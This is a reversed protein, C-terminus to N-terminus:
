APTHSRELDVLSRPAALAREAQVQKISQTVVTVAIIVSTGSVLLGAAPVGSAVLAPVAAVLALFAGGPLSLRSTLRALYVVTEPGPRVGPIFAGDRRLGEAQEVPDLVVSAYAFTVAIILLGELLAYGISGQRLLGDALDLGLLGGLTAPTSVLAGAFIAPVMGAINLPVPMFARPAPTLANLQPRPYHLPLRRRCEGVYVVGAVSATLLAAALLRADLATEWYEPLRAAMSALIGAMLVVSLGRGIGRESIQEGIWMVLVGGLTLAVIGVVLALPGQGELLGRQRFVLMIGTAQAASIVVTVQRALAHLRESGGPEQRIAALAPVLRGGLQEGLSAVIAPSAGLLFLPLMGAGGGGLFTLARLLSLDSEAAAVRFAEQDVGPIPWGAGVRYALLALLTFLIRRTVTRRRLTSTTSM